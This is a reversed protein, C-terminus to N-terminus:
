DAEGCLTWKTADYFEMNDFTKKIFNGEITIPQHKIVNDFARIVPNGRELQLRVRAGTGQAIFWYDYTNHKKQHADMKRIFNLDIAYNDMQRPGKLTTYDCEFVSVLNLDYQYFRPLKCLMGIFSAPISYGDTGENNILLLKALDQKIRHLACSLVVPDEIFQHIEEEVIYNNDRTATLPMISM